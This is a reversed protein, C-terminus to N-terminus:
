EEIHKEFAKMSDAKAAWKHWKSLVEAQTEGLIRNKVEEPVEGLEELIDENICETVAQEVAEEIPMQLAKM